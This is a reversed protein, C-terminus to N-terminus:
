RRASVVPLCIEPLAAQFDPIIPKLKQRKKILTVAM